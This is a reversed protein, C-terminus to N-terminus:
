YDAIARKMKEIRKDLNDKHEVMAALEARMAEKEQMMVTM